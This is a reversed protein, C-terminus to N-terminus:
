VFFPPQYRKQVVLVRVDGSWWEARVAGLESDPLLPTPRDSRFIATVSLVGDGQARDPIFYNQTPFETEVVPLHVAWVNGWQQTEWGATQIASQMARWEQRPLRDQHFLVW